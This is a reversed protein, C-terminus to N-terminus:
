IIQFLNRIKEEGTEDRIVPYPDRVTVRITLEQEGCDTVVVFRGDCADGEQMGETRFSFGIEESAGFFHPTLVRFRPADATVFGEIPHGNDSLALFSGEITEGPDATWEPQEVSLSLVGHEGEPIEEILRRIKEDM